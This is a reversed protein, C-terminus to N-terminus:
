GSVSPDTYHVISNDFDNNLVHISTGLLLLKGTDRTVQFELRQAFELTVWLGLSVNLIAFSDILWRCQSYKSASNLCSWWQQSFSSASSQLWIHSYVSICILSGLPYSFSHINLRCLEDLLITTLTIITCLEYDNVSPFRCLTEVTM